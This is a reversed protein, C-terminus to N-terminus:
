QKMFKYVGRYSEVDLNVYYLGNPLHSIDIDANKDDKSLEKYHIKKGTVDYITLVPNTDSVDKLLDVILFSSAPNPYIRFINNNIDNNDVSMIVNDIYQDIVELVASLDNGALTNTNNHRIIGEKDIVLLRDYTTNFSKAVDGGKLLLPYSVETRTKFSEVQSKSGGWTDIGVMVFDDRSNYQQFLDSESKPAFGICSPCNYGFLFLVVLKERQDSLKFSNDNISTLEFDPATTGEEQGFLATPLLFIFTIIYNITKM